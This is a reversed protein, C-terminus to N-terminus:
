RWLWDRSIASEAKKALCTLTMKGHFVSEEPRQFVITSDSDILLHIM